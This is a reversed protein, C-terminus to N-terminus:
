RFQHRIRIEEGAKVDVLQVYSAFGPNRIEIRHPGPKLAVDRLPPAVGFKRDDVYVEGWPLVNIRLIGTGADAAPESASAKTEPKRAPKASASAETKSDAKATPSKVEPVPAPPTVPPTGTQALEAAPAEPAPKRLTMRLAISTGIILIVALATALLPRRMVGTRATSATNGLKEFAAAHATKQRPLRQPAPAPGLAYVEHERVHKDTRSGEFTFLNAHETSLAAVVEHYSRSALVQNVAAFGMVRQAVNIGDRHRMRRAQNARQQNARAVGLREGKRLALGDHGHMMELPM